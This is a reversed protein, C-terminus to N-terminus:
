TFRPTRMMIFACHWRTGSAPIGHVRLPSRGACGSKARAGNQGSLQVLLEKHVSDVPLSEGHRIMLSRPSGVTQRAKSLIVGYYRPNKLHPPSLEPKGHGRILM